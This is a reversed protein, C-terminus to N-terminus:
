ASSSITRRWSRSAARGQARLLAHLEGGPRAPAGPRLRRPADGGAVRPATRGRARRAEVRLVAGLGGHALRRPERHRQLRHAARQVLVADPHREAPAQLQHPERRVGAQGARRAEEARDGGAAPRQRLRRSGAPLHLARRHRQVPQGAPLRQRRTNEWDIVRVRETKQGGHERDPVSVRFATRSCCDYVERNAAVLSM